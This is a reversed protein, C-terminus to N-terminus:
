DDPVDRITDSFSNIEPTTPSPPSPEGEPVFTNGLIKFAADGAQLEVQFDKWTPANAAALILRELTELRTIRAIEELTGDPISGFRLELVALLDQYDVLLAAKRLRAQLNEPESM